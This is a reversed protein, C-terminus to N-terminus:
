ICSTSQSKFVELYLLAQLLGFLPHKHFGAFRLLTRALLCSRNAAIVSVNLLFWAKCLCM